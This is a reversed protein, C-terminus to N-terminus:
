NGQPQRKKLLSRVALAFDPANALYSGSVLLDAGANWCLQSTIDNIGGDVSIRFNLGYKRRTADLAAIKSLASTLFEQGSAGPAVSMIMVEDIDRIVKKVVNISSDPHIAIGVRRGASKVTQIAALLGSTNTSLIVTDAGAAVAGAAWVSPSETMLHVHLHADTRSRIQKLEDLSGRVRDVYFGDMIDVHILSIGGSKFLTYTEPRSMNFCLTSPMIPIFAQQVPRPRRRFLRTFFGARRAWRDHRAIYNQCHASEGGWIFDSLATVLADGGVVTTVVAFANEIFESLGQINAGGGSLIIKTPRCKKFAPACRDKVQAIIDILIPIIINNVDSCSFAYDRDAPTFRAMEDPFMNARAHKIRNATETDLGLETSLANTINTGGLPVKTHFIPGRDTWISASTFMAGFDIFMVTQNECRYATNMIYQPDYFGDSQIHANHIATLLPTAGDRSYYISGFASILQCDTHGIPSPINRSQPTDYRLPIIHMPFHGDPIQIQSIQTRIDEATIKHETGWITNKAIIGFESPGFNGTIYASDFHAGIQRELEDIVTRIAFTTDPSDMTFYASRYIRAGRIRRALGRVGYTGIDLCLFSSDLLNM